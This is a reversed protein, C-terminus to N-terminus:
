IKTLLYIILPATLMNLLTTVFVGQSALRYDSEFRRAFIATNVAAPMGTIISLVGVVIDPLNFMSLTLMLLIPLLLLRIAAIIYLKANGITESIKTDALMAGAVFMALPTTTDGLLKLPNYILMPLKISFIFLFLGIIVSIIGPNILNKLRSGNNQKDVSYATLFKVGLTWTLVNFLINYISAYFIGVDGFVAKLIPFGMFASNPFVILFNYVGKQPEQSKVAKNFIAAALIALVYSFAGFLLIKIANNFMEMSFAYNMSTITLLPLTINTIFGSIDKTFENSIIKMKKIFFGIFIIIFLIITQNLVPLFSMSLGRLILIMIVVFSPRLRRKYLIM